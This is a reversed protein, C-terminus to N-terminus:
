PTADGLVAHSLADRLQSRARHLRSRVTGVPLNLMESIEEYCFGDIERLVLVSRHEDSLGSLAQHVQGAREERLMRGEPREGPDAPDVGEVDPGRDLSLTPRERRRRSVFQNIAIRYLWTYFRSGGRFTDLKLYAQLFTEQLVDEAEEACGAMHTLAHFLRQQHRRVLTDFADADGRLTERILRGDDSEDASM